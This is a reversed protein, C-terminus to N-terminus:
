LVHRWIQRRRVQYVLSRDVQLRASVLLASEKSDLIERVLEETLKANWMQSGKLPVKPGMTKKKAADRMNDLSTGTFLHDPNICARNDGGPCDHCVQYGPPIPGVYVEYSVRHAYVVKYDLGMQGYGAKSKGATWIWCGTEPSVSYKKSLKAKVADVDEIKM